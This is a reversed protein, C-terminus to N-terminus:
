GSRASLLVKLKDRFTRSMRIKAGDNMLVVHDGYLSPTIKKICKVNVIFSRHVRVLVEPDLRKEINQLSERVLHTQVGVRLKVFDGQAEMWAIDGPEVFLHEGGIKFVLRGAVSAPREDVSGAGTDMQRLHDLLDKARRQMEDFNAHRVQEKARGVAAKLRLDRFPKLIYDVACMEFAQVAHRDYATVFIVAPREKPALEELVQFGDTQPMRVDLFVLDPRQARIEALATRGDGCHGIVDIEPDDRLVLAIGERALPEDDVILTRLKKM